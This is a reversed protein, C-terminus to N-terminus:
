CPIQSYDLCIGKSHRTGFAEGGGDAMWTGADSIDDDGFDSNDTYVGVQFPPTCDTFFTWFICHALKSHISFIDIM